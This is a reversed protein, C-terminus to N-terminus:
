RKRMKKVIRVAARLNNIAKALENIGQALDRLDNSLKSNYHAKKKASHKAHKYTGIVASDKLLGHLM